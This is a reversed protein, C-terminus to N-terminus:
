DTFDATLSIVQGDLAAFATSEFAAPGGHSECYVSAGVNLEYPVDREMLWHVQVGGDGTSWGDFPVVEFEHGSVRKRFRKDQAFTILTGAQVVTMEMGGEVTAGGGAFGVPSVAAVHYAHQTRRLSRGNVSRVQSSQLSVGFGAHADSM